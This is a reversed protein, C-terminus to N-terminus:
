GRLRGLAADDLAIGFHKAIEQIDHESFLRHGGVRLPEALRGSEYLYLIRWRPIHLTHQVDKLSFLTLARM